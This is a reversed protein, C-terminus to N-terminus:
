FPPEDPFAFRGRQSRIEEALDVANYPLWPPDPRQQWHTGTTVRQGNPSTWELQGTEKHRRLVWQADHIAHHHRNCLLTLNNPETRGGRGWFVIHHVQLNSTRTCGPFTCRRQDREEVARRVVATPIREDAREDLTLGTVPDSILRSVLADCCLRALATSDLVGDSGIAPGAITAVDSTARLTGASLVADLPVHVVVAAKASTRGTPGSVMAEACLDVLADARRQECSRADEASSPVAFPELAAAVTALDEVPLRAFVAGMGDRAIYTRLLRLNRVDEADVVELVPLMASAMKRARIRYQWPTIVDPDALLRSEVGAAQGESLEVTEDALAVAHAWSLKGAALLTATAPLKHALAHATRVRRAAEGPGIRAAVMLDEREWHHGLGDPSSTQAGYRDTEPTLASLRRILAARQSAIWGDQAEWSALAAVVEAASMSGPDLACLAAVVAPGVEQDGDGVPQNNSRM